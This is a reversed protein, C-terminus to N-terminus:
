LDSLHGIRRGARERLVVHTAPRPAADRPRGRLVQRRRERALPPGPTRSAVVRGELAPHRPSSGRAGRRAHRGRGDVSAVGAISARSRTSSSQIARGRERAPARAGREYADEHEPERLTDLDSRRRPARRGRWASPRCATSSSSHARPTRRSSRRARRACAGGTSRRSPICSAEAEVVAAHADGLRDFLLDVVARSCSRYTAPPPTSPTRATTAALGGALGRAPGPGAGRRPRRARRRPARPAGTGPRAVVVSRRGRGARRPARRTPAAVRRRVPSCAKDRGM